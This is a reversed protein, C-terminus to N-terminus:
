YGENQELDPNADIEVEPIPFLVHFPKALKGRAVADSILRDHRLLDERRKGEFYFEWSREQLIADRLTEKTFGGSALPTAKARIRVQNILDIAEASPGSIENLAEARSLVIDAYRVIPVDNGATPGASNPDFEYKYPFSQDRGYGQVTNGSSTSVYSRIVFNQRTDSEEFSDVFSDFLYTRAAFVGNNPFPRPFDPPFLLANVLMGTTGSVPSKTMAWLLEANGENAIAFVNAYNDQLRYKGLDMISKAMDAAKQWQKTNMYYKCLIGMAAGKSGKGFAPQDTPLNAIASLLEQEIVARTDSDSARLQLPDDLSSQYIPLRGFLNYLESYAWGRIFNAEATTTQIFAASFNENNINDLVINADRIARYYVTWMSQIQSHNSDWNYNILAVWLNEISGGAGWIEGATMGGLYFPAWTEVAGTRHAYAYSANLVSTIGKETTFLTSPALSSFIDEELPKECSMSGLLLIIIIFKYAYLKM